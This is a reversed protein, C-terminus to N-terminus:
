GAIRSGRTALVAGITGIVAMVWTSPEPVPIFPALFSYKDAVSTAYSYAPTATTILSAGDYFGSMDYLAAQMNPGNPTLSPVSVSSNIGVLEWKGATANFSFIGGGSDGNSYIGETDPLGNGGTPQTFSMALYVNSSSDLVFGDLNNTGYSLVTDNAGWNWGKPTNATPFNNTVETGRATGRGYMYVPQNTVLTNPDSWVTAWSTFSPQDANLVMVALDGSTGARTSAYSITGTTGSNNYTLVGTADTVHTATVWARPGIPIGLYSKYQGLYQWGPMVGGTLVPMTTLRGPDQFVIIAKSSLMPVLIMGFCTILRLFLHRGM